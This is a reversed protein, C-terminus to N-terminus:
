HDFRLGRKVNRTKLTLFPYNVNRKSVLSIMDESRTSVARYQGILIAPTLSRSHNPFSVVSIEGAATAFHVASSAVHLRDLKQLVLDALHAQNRHPVITQEPRSNWVRSGSVAALGLSHSTLGAERGSIRFFSHEAECDIAFTEVLLEGTIGVAGQHMRLFGAFVHGPNLKLNNWVSPEIGQIGMENTMTPFILWSALLAGIRIADPTRADSAYAGPPHDSFRLCVGADGFDGTTWRDRHVEITTKHVRVQNFINWM